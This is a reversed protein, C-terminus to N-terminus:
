RSCTLRNGATVTGSTPCRACCGLCEKTGDIGAGWDGASPNNVSNGGYCVGKGSTCNLRHERARGLGQTLYASTSSPWYSSPRDGAVTNRNHWRDYQFLRYQKVSGDNCGDEITFVITPRNGGTVSRIVFSVEATRGGPDRATVTITVVGSSFAQLATLTLTSGSVSARVFATASSSANYTLRDGDPDSFRSAVDITSTRGVTMSTVDAIGGRVVPDRNGGTVGGTVSRIVFSVEATRGGPDRATVTITVVGSSFAQLATLTLTSGSVSARVFATASSSANYTLRDGDPDSFRSAVDITSTRGVTMSTVDAIGGRVVPDRNGGTVGGTVGRIVFSVEATRGGPDRATVTITVVGSSFAQLATLTLTSGSVSARVFATASSSANYTLRDGDPDSFRSAVDITSTRGVTMSTVDAIGGRVVPDRNGGTVGGTVGRIVFSVEATRGSPDRATVTIRVVGSSFAQLATLTLTSGSM